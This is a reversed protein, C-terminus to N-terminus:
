EYYPRQAPFRVPHNEAIVAHYRGTSLVSSMPRRGVNLRRCLVRDLRERYAHAHDERRFYRTFQAYEEDPEGCPYTWGGEENGGHALDCLYVAVSHLTRPAGPGITWDNVADHWTEGCALAGEITAVEEDTFRSGDARVRGWTTFIEGNVIVRTRGPLNAM